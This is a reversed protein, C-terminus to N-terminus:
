CCCFSLVITDSKNISLLCKVKETGFRYYKIPGFYGHIGPMYKSGGIVFYGDTDNYYISDQFRYSIQYWEFWSDHDSQM